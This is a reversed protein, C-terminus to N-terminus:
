GVIGKLRVGRLHVQHYLDIPSTPQAEPMTIVVFFSEIETIEVPRGGITVSFANSRHPVGWPLSHMVAANLTTVTFQPGVSSPFQTYPQRIYPSDTFDFRWDSLERIRRIIDSVDQNAAITLDGERVQIEATVEYWFMHQAKPLGSRGTVNTDRGRQKTLAVANQFAGFDRFLEVNAPHAAGGQVGETDYISEKRPRTAVNQVAPQTVVPIQALQGFM